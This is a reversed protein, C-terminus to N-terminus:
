EHIVLTGFQSPIHFDAPVRRTPSWASESSPTGDRPRDIRYFNCRWSGRGDSVGLSHWPIAMCCQWGAPDVATWSQWPPDWRTDLTMTPRQEDPNHIIGDFRTNLPNVELEYYRHPRDSGSAIFLEVVEETYIPDDHGTLTAWADADACDFRVWLTTPSAVLRITTAQAVPAGTVTHVLRRYPLQAWQPLALPNAASALWEDTAIHLHITPQIM